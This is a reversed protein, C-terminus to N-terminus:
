VAAAEIATAALWETIVAATAEPRESHAAHGADAISAFTANPLVEVMRTAIDTFKTDLQGAIALVPVPIRGLQQWLSSQNGTGCARLSHALGFATNRRRHALGQEDPPLTAFLPAALWEDLFAEVGITEVRKAREDDLRRREGREDSSEIGPTAGILVLREVIDPRAAVAALGFRGGMSYGIYTGRGALDALPAGDDDIRTRDDSSLGHGPLDVFALAPRIDLREAILHACRHWHHHTQTFGHLFVLRDTFGIDSTASMM